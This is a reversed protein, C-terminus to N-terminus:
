QRRPDGFEKLRYGKKFRNILIITTDKFYNSYYNKKLYKAYKKKEDIM